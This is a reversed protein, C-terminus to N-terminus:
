EPVLCRKIFKLSLAGLVNDPSFLILPCVKTFINNQNHEFIYLMFFLALFSHILIKPCPFYKLHKKKTSKQKRCTEYRSCM